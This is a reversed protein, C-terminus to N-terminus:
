LSRLDVHFRQRTSATSTLLVILRAVVVLLVDRSITLVTTAACRPYSYQKIDSELRM